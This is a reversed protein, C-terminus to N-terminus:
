KSCHLKVCDGKISAKDKSCITKAHEPTVLVKLVDKQVTTRNSLVQESSTHKSKVTRDVSVVCSKEWELEKEKVCTLVVDSRDCPIKEVIKEVVQRPQVYVKEKVVVPPKTCVDTVHAKVGVSDAAHAVVAAKLDSLEKAQADLQHTLGKVAELVERKGSSVESTVPVLNISQLAAEARSGDILKKGVLLIALLLLIAGLVGLVIKLVKM